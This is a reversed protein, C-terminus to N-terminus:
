NSRLPCVLILILYLCVTIAFLKFKSRFNITGVYRNRCANDPHLATSFDPNSKQKPIKEFEFFLQSDVLKQELLQCQQFVFYFSFKLVTM